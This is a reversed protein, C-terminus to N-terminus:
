KDRQGRFDRLHCAYGTIFGALHWTIADCYQPRERDRGVITLHSRRKALEHALWFFLSVISLAMVSLSANVFAV